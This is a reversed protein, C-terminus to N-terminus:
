AEKQIGLQPYKEQVTKLAMEDLEKFHKQFLAAAEANTRLCMELVKETKVMRMELKILELLMEGNNM